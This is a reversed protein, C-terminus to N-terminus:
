RLGDPQNPVRLGGSQAKLEEQLAKLEANREQLKTELARLVDRRNQLEGKRAELEGKRSQLEEKLRVLEGNLQALVDERIEQAEVRVRLERPASSVCGDRSLVRVNPALVFEHRSGEGAVLVHYGSGFAVTACGDPSSGGGARAALTAAGGLTAGGLICALAVLDTGTLSM